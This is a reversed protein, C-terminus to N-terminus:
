DKIKTIRVPSLRKPEPGSHFHVSQTRQDNNVVRVTKTSTSRPAGANAVVRQLYTDEITTSLVGPGRDGTKYKAVAERVRDEAIKTHLRQRYAERELIGDETRNVAAQDIVVKPFRMVTEGNEGVIAERPEGWALGPGPSESPSDPPLASDAVRATESGSYGGAFHSGLGTSLNMRYRAEQIANNVKIMLMLGGVIVLPGGVICALSFLGAEVLPYSLYGPLVCEPPLPAGDVLSLFPIEPVPLNPLHGNYQRTVIGLALAVSCDVVKEEPLGSEKLFAVVQGITVGAAITLEGNGVIIVPEGGQLRPELPPGLIGNLVLGLVPNTRDQTVLGACALRVVMGLEHLMCYPGYYVIKVGLDVKSKM